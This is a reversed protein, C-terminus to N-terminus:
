SSEAWILVRQQCERWDDPVLYEQGRVRDWAADFDGVKFHHTLWRAWARRCMGDSWGRFGSQLLWFSVCGIFDFGM